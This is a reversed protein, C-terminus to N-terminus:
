RDEIFMLRPTFGRPHRGISQLEHRRIRTGQKNVLDHGEALFYRILTREMLALAKTRNQGPRTVLRGPILVRQGSQANAVHQMLRLNNLQNKVRSRINMGKGVYLAEFSSGWRRALVYVGTDDPLSEPSLDYLLGTGSAKRLLIPRGWEVQLRLM